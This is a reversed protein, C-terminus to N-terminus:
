VLHHHYAFATAASRNSLGLKTLVNHMHRAVTKDSIVLQEAIERNTRGSAVLRIVELERVTLGGVAAPAATPPAQSHAGPPRAAGVAALVRDAADIEIAATEEDGLDRLAQGTLLRVRATEYPAKLLVWCRRAAEFRDLAAGPRGGMLLVQGSARAAMAQILPTRVADSIANLEVCAKDAADVEGACFMIDVYASLSEARARPSGLETSAEPYTRPIADIVRRIAAVATDTRGQALWLLALGPHPDHGREAATQYATEAASYEGRLRHLEARQYYAMGVAADPPDSLWRCARDAEIIAGSWDGRFQALQSRHVLCQGRFPVLGSQGDCWRSFAETWEQARRVDFAQQCAILVACYILGSALPSVQGTEVALMSEDLLAVGRSSKGLRLLAQGQGLRGLAVLDGDAFRQGISAAEGFAMYAVGPDDSDLARLAEPLLVYGWEACRRPGREDLLRHARAIWGSGRAEAGRAILLVMGLWFACRAASRVDGRDCYAGYARSWGVEALRQRGTLHACLALRELDEPERLLGSEDAAVLEACGSDWENREVAARGRAVTKDGSGMGASVEPM